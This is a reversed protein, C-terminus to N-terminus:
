THATDIVLAPPAVKTLGGRVMLMVVASSPPYCQVLAALDCRNVTYAMSCQGEEYAIVECLSSARRQIHTNCANCQTNHPVYLPRTAYTTTHPLPKTNPM